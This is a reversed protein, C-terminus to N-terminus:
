DKIAMYYDMYIKKQPELECARRFSMLAERPRKSYYEWKGKLFHYEHKNPEIEIADNIDSIAKETNGKEM